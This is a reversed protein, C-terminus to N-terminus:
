KLYLCWGGAASNCEQRDAPNGNLKTSPPLFQTRKFPDTTIIGSCPAICACNSPNSTPRAASSCWLALYWVASQVQRGQPHIGTDDGGTDSQEVRDLAETSARSGTPRGTVDSVVAEMWSRWLAPLSEPVVLLEVSQGGSAAPRSSLVFPMRNTELEELSRRRGHHFTRREESLWSWRRGWVNDSSRRKM